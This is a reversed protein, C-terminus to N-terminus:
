GVSVETCDVAKLRTAARYVLSAESSLPFSGESVQGAASASGERALVHRLRIPFATRGADLRQEPQADGRPHIFVLIVSCPLAERRNAERGDCRCPRPAHGYRG